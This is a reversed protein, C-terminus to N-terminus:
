TSPNEGAHTLLAFFFGDGGQIPGFRRQARCTWGPHRALFAAVQDENEQRLFSCTVHSLWGGPAVMGAARDLIEGQIVLLEALRAPTLAWKGAPDRRWSGSGSCPVDCLVLDFPGDAEPRDSLHLSAGARAARAPLDAMRRPAADHAFLTVKARAAMALSKGGGGACLDLVRMDDRLPLAEVVAQSAADQLEVLGEAFSASAQIGRAGSTVELAFDALPHPRTAIREDALRAAAAARDIRAANVRLVVPARHRLAEAVAPFDAGLSDRLPALLWDPLDLAEAGEPPRPAEDPGPSPPAHPSGDFWEGELGEARALGLVLARGTAEGARAGGLAAASRRRRLAQFVIDRVAARDGSGAYRSARAWETLAAEAPRGGLIRELVWIAAQARGAPRM